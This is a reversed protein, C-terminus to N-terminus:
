AGRVSVDASSTGAELERSRRRAQGDSYTSSSTTSTPKGCGAPRPRRTGAFRHTTDAAGDVGGVRDVGRIRTSAATGGRRAGRPRGAGVAGRASCGTDAHVSNAGVPAVDASGEDGRATGVSRVGTLAAIGRRGGVRPRREGVARRAASAAYAARVAAHVAAVDSAREDCRVSDVWRVGALAASGVGRRVCPRRTGVARAASGPAHARATNALSAAEDAPRVVGGACDIRRVRALNARRRGRGRRPRRTGGTRSAAGTAHAAAPRAEVMSRM